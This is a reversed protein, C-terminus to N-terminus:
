YGMDNEQADKQLEELAKLRDVKSRQMYEMLDSFLVRRHSGVNRFPLKGQELLKVLFPRSVNLTDAAEQTTLEAHSPIMTIANGQAMQALIELLMKAVSQPVAVSEEEVQIHFDDRTQGLMSSLRQLSVRAVERERDTPSVTGIFNDDALKIDM